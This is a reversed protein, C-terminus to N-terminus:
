ENHIPSHGHVIPASIYFGPNKAIPQFVLDCEALLTKAITVQVAQFPSRQLLFEGLALGNQIIKHAAHPEILLSRRVPVGSACCGIRSEIGGKAGM